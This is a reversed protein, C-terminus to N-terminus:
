KTQSEIAEKIQQVGKDLSAKPEAANNWIATYAVEMGGWVTQMETINPMPISYKAQELFASNLENSKITENEILGNSAPLQGTLEYRKLLMEDSTAFKAFLTAAQPYKSYANVYYGKTGTFTQPVEGNELKPLTTVGFNVGAEEHGKVAWPGSFYYLLKGENFHSTIVDGTIDEKKMPLIEDRIREMLSAAKLSGEKNLGIESPDTNNDGFIFDGYGGVFGHVLYFNGPEIMFGYSGPNKDMFSKSQEILEDMTKAPEFGMEALLDKNYYLAIGEINLPFGYMKLEEEDKASVATVASELFREKYEKAFYNDYILGSTVMAGVHDHAANFVDAGIGAPGDTKLKGPAETHSVTEYKVPVGYEETFKKAVYKAWEGEEDGNDWLVLKAGEEPVIEETTTETTKSGESAENSTEGATPAGPKNCAALVFILLSIMSLTFLKKM